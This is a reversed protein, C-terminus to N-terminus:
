FQEQAVKQLEEILELRRQPSIFPQQLERQIERMRLIGKAPEDIQRMAEQVQEKAEELSEAQEQQQPTPPTLAEVRDSEAAALENAAEQIAKMRGLRDFFAQKEPTYTTMPTFGLVDQRLDGLRRGEDFQSGRVPEPTFARGLDSTITSLGLIGMTMMFREYARKQSPTSFQYTMSISGDPNRRPTPVINAPSGGYTEMIFNIVDSKDVGVALVAPSDLIALHEAPVEKYERAFPDQVNMLYKYEPAIFGGIVDPIQGQLIKAFTEFSQLTPIGPTTLLEYKGEEPKIPKVDWILRSAAYSPAFDAIRREETGEPLLLQQALDKTRGINKIRKLGEVSTFNRLATALASRGFSYFLAARGITKRELDTVDARDFMSKRALEIAESESRGERLAQALASYRFLLDENQPLNKFARYLYEPVTEGAGAADLVERVRSLEETSNFLEPRYVSKGTADRLIEDLEGATYRKGSPTTILVRNKNIKGAQLAGATLIDSIYPLRGINEYFIEAGTVLNIGHFRPRLNLMILYRLNQFADPLGRATDAVFKGVGSKRIGDAMYENRLDKILQDRMRSFGSMFEGTIQGAIDEGFLAKLSESGRRGSIVNELLNELQAVNIDSVAMKNTKMIYNTLDDSIKLAVEVQDPNLKIPRAGSFGQSPGQINDFFDKVGNAPESYVNGSAAARRYNQYEELLNVGQLRFKVSDTILNEAKFVDGLQVFPSDAQEILSTFLEKSGSKDLASEIFDSMLRDTIRSAEAKVYPIIQLDVPLKGGAAQRLSTINEVPERFLEPNSTMLSEVEDILRNLEEFYVTPGNDAIREVAKTVSSDLDKLLKGSLVSTNSTVNTGSITDFINEITQKTQFNSLLGDTLSARIRRPSFYYEEGGGVILHQLADAPTLQADPAIGYAERVAPKNILEQLRSGLRTIIAEGEVAARKLMNRQAPGAFMEIPKDGRLKRYLTRLARTALTRRELPELLELQRQGTLQAAEEARLIAPTKETLALKEAHVDVLKDLLFRADEVPLAGTKALQAKILDARRANIGGIQALDDIAGRIAAAKQPDVKYAPVLAGNGAVRSNSIVLKMDDLKTSLTSLLEGLPSAKAEKLIRQATKRGAFTNDTLARFQDAESFGPIERISKAVAKLSEDTTIATKLLKRYDDNALIGKIGDSKLVAKFNDNALAAARASRAVDARSLFRPQSGEAMLVLDESIKGARELVNDATRILSRNADVADSITGTQTALKRYYPTTQFDSLKTLAQEVPMDPTARVIDEASLAADVDRQLRRAAANSVSGADYTTNILSTLLWDNTFSEWGKRAAMAAAEGAGELYSGYLANMARSYNVGSKIGTGVAKAVDLSPDLIDGAFSAALTGYYTAPANEPTIGLEDLMAQQEGMFGRNEAINTLIRESYDRDEEDPAFTEYVAAPLVNFPSMAGRLLWGSVTEKRTGLPSVDQFFGYDTYLDPRRLREQWDEKLWWTGMEEEAQARVEDRTMLRFDGGYLDTTPKTEMRRDTERELAREQRDNLYARQAETLNPIGESVTEQRSFARFWPDNPGTVTPEDRIYSEKDEIRTGIDSLQGFASDIAYKVAEEGSLGQERAEDLAPRYFHRKFSDVDAAAEEEPIELAEVFDQQVRQWDIGVGPQGITEEEKPRPPPIVEETQRQLAEPLVSEILPVVGGEEREQPTGYGFPVPKKYEEAVERQAIAGAAADSLNPDQLQLERVRRRRYREEEAELSGTPAEQIQATERLQEQREAEREAVPFEQSVIRPPTPLFQERIAPEAAFLERAAQQAAPGPQMGTAILEKAREYIQAKQPDTFM